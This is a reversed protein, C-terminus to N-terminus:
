RKSIVDVEALEEATLRWNGAAVNQDIQEPRTAGAIVSGVHSLSALWGIALDVMTKGRAEAFAELKGLMEYNVRRPHFASIVADGLRAMDLLFRTRGAEDLDNINSVVPDPLLLCYGPLFQAEGMVAWGSPMRAIVRASQGARAADVARHIATIGPANTAGTM